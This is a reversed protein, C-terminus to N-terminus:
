AASGEQAQAATLHGHLKELLVIVKKQSFFVTDGDAELPRGNNHGSVLFSQGTINIPFLALASSIAQQVQPVRAPEPKTGNDRLLRVVADLVDSVSEPSTRAQAKKDLAQLVAYGDFLIAPVPDAQPTPQTNTSLMRRLRAYERLMVVVMGHGMFHEGSARDSYANAWYDITEIPQWEAVQEGSPRRAQEQRAPTCTPCDEGHGSGDRMLGGILGIGRCTKCPEQSPATSISAELSKAIRQATDAVLTWEPDDIYIIARETMRHLEEIAARMATEGGATQAPHNLHRRINGAIDFAMSLVSNTPMTIKGWGGPAGEMRESGQMIAELADLAARLLQNEISM